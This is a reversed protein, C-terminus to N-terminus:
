MGVLTIGLATLAVAQFGNFVEIGVQPQGM